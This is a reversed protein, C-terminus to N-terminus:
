LSLLFIILFVIGFERVRKCNRKGWCNCKTFNLVHASQSMMGDEAKRKLYVKESSKDLIIDTKPTYRFDSSKNDLKHTFLREQEQRNFGFDDDQKIRKKSFDTKFNPGMTYFEQNLQNNNWLPVFEKAFIEKADVTTYDALQSGKSNYLWQRFPANFRFYDESKIKIM